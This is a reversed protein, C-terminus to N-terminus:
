CLLFTMGFQSSHIFLNLVALALIRHAQPILYPSPCVWFFLKHSGPTQVRLRTVESKRSTSPAQPSPNSHSSVSPLFAPSSITDLLHQDPCCSAPLATPLFQQYEECQRFSCPFFSKFVSTLNRTYPTPPFIQLLTFSLLLPIILETKCPLLKFCHCTTWRSIDLSFNM